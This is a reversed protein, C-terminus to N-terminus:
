LPESISCACSKLLIAWCCSGLKLQKEEHSFDRNLLGQGEALFKM